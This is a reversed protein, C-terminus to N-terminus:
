REQHTRKSDKKSHNGEIRRAIKSREKARRRAIKRIEFMGQQQKREKLCWSILKAVQKTEQKSGNSLSSSRIEEVRGSQMPNCDVMEKKIRVLYSGGLESVM